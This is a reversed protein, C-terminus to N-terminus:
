KKEAAQNRFYNVQWKRVARNHCDLTECFEHSGDNKSVFYLYKTKAPWLAAEIAALGPAAIPGPPLGRIKYTNYAHLTQLDIKRIKGDYNKMGYIVTPDAQLPMGIRIRNLYVSAIIPREDPAGTEKEIISALTLTDHLTTNLEAIRATIRADLKSQLRQYMKKIITVGTDKQSFFYTDPFLYGEIYARESVLTPLRFTPAGILSAIEPNKIAESFSSETVLGKQALTNVLEALTQGEKFVTKYSQDRGTLLRDAIEKIAIMGSFNYYGAQFKNGDNRGLRVYWYFLSSRHIVRQEALIDSVRRLSSGYPIEVTADVEILSGGVRTCFLSVIFALAIVGLFFASTMVVFTKLFVKAFSM